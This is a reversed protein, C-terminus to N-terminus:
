CFKGVTVCVHPYRSYIVLYNDKCTVPVKATNGFIQLRKVDLVKYYRQGHKKKEWMISAWRDAM